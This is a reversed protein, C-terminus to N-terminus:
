MSLLFLTTEVNKRLLFEARKQKVTKADDHRFVRHHLVSFHAFLMLMFDRCILDVNIFRLRAQDCRGMDIGLCGEGVKLKARDAQEMSMGTGNSDNVSSQFEGSTDNSRPKRALAWSNFGSSM